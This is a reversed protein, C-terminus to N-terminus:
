PKDVGEGVAEWIGQEPSSTKNIKNKVRDWTAQVTASMYSPRPLYKYSPLFPPLFPLVSPPLSPLLFSFLFSFSLLSPLFSSPGHTLSEQSNMQSSCAWHGGDGSAQQPFQSVKDSPGSPPTPFLVRLGPTRVSFIKAIRSEPFDERPCM